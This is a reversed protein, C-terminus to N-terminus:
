LRFVWAGLCVLGPLLALSLYFPWTANSRLAKRWLAKSDGAPQLQFADSLQFCAKAVKDAAAQYGSRFRNELMLYYADLVYFVPIPLLILLALKHNTQTASLTLVATVIGICWTKCAASNGAMRNIIAQYFELTKIVAENSAELPTTM